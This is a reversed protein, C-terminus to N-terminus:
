DHGKMRFLSFATVILLCQCIGAVILISAALSLFTAESLAAIAVPILAAILAGLHFVLGALRSRVQRRFTETLLAPLIGSFGVGIVGMMFACVNLKLPWIGVYFPLVLISLGSPVAVVISMGFRSLGIGTLLSGLIFGLAFLASCHSSFKKTKGLESELLEPYLSTLAYYSCFLLITLFLCARGTTQGKPEQPLQSPRGSEESKDRVERVPVLFFTPLIGLIASLVFVTRWGYSPVLVGNAVAALLFGLPWSGHIIGSVLSRGPKPWNEIALVTGCAWVGGMSLGFLIRSLILSFLGGSCLTFLSSGAASILAAVLPIRRGVRDSIFGFGFGGFLRAALTASIAASTETRTVCLEACIDPVVLVFVTFEFATVVWASWGAAFCLKANRPANLLELIARM